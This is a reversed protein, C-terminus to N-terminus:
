SSARARGPLLAPPSPAAPGVAQPRAASAAGLPGAVRGVAALVPERLAASLWDRVAARKAPDRRLQVLAVVRGRHDRRRERARVPRALRVHDAPRVLALLRLRPRQLHGGPARRRPHRLAPLPAPEVAVCRRHVAAAAVCLRPLSRGPDHPQRAARLLARGPGPARRHDEAARRPAAAVRPRAPARARLPSTASGACVWVVAILVLLSIEGQGAVLGGVIVATEGPAVFGLFAGTEAFALFGVLLYTWPGLATGADEILKELNPLHVVGLGILLAAAIAALEAIQFWRQQRHRRAALWGGLICAAVIWGWKM